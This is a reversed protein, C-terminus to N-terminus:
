HSKCKRALLQMLEPTPSRPRRSTDGVTGSPGWLGRAAATGFSAGISGRGRDGGPSVSRARVGVTGILRSGDGPSPSAYRQQQRTPGQPPTGDVLGRRASVERGSSRRSRGRRSAEVEGYADSGDEEEHQYGGQSRMLKIDASDEQLSASTTVDAHQLLSHIYKANAVDALHTSQPWIRCCM